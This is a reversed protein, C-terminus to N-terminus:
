AQNEGKAPFLVEEPLELARTLAQREKESVTGFGNELRSIRGQDIGTTQALEDQSIGALIRAQRLASKTKRM